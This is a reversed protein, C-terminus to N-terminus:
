AQTSKETQEPNQAAETKPQNSVKKSDKRQNTLKTVDTYLGSAGYIGNITM